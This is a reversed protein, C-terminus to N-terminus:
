QYEKAESNCGSALLSLDKQSQLEHRILEFVDTLHRETTLVNGM